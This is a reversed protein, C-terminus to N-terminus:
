KARDDREDRDPEGAAGRDQFVAAALEARSGVRLKRFISAIQNTTTSPSTGRVAAIHAAEHGDLLLILVEHEATTLADIRPVRPLDHVFLVKGPELEYAVLSPPPVDPLPRSM